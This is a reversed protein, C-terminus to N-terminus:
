DIVTRDLTVQLGNEHGKLQLDRWFERVSKSPNSNVFQIKPFELDSIEHNQIIQVFAKDLGSDDDADVGFPVLSHFVYTEFNDSNRQSFYDQLNTLHDFIQFEQGTYKAATKMSSVYKNKFLLTDKKAVQESCSNSFLGELLGTEPCGPVCADMTIRSSRGNHVIVKIADGMEFTSYLKTMGTLFYQQDDQTQYSEGFLHLEVNKPNETLSCYNPQASVPNGSFAIVICAAAVSLNKKFKM